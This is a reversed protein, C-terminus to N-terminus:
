SARLRDGTYKPRYCGERRLMETIEQRRSWQMGRQRGNPNPEDNSIVQCADGPQVDVSHRPPPAGANHEICFNHLQAAIVAVLGWKEARFNLRRHFV